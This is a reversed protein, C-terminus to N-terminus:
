KDVKKDRYEPPLTKDGDAIPVEKSVINTSPMENKLLIKHNELSIPIDDRNFTQTFYIYNLRKNNRRTIIILYGESKEAAAIEEIIEKNHIKPIKTESM